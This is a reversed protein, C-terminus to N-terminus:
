TLILGNFIFNVHSHFCNESTKDRNAVASFLTNMVKLGPHGAQRAINPDFDSGQYGRPPPMNEVDAFDMRIRKDPGGLPFGRM